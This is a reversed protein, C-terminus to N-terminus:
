FVDSDVFIETLHQAHNQSVNDVEEQSKCESRLKKYVGCEHCVAHTLERQFRLVKKWKRFERKFSAKSSPEEGRRKSYFRYTHLLETPTGPPLVRPHKGLEEMSKLGMHLPDWGDLLNAASLFSSDLMNDHPSKDSRAIQDQVEAFDM